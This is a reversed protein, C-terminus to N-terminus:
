VSSSSGDAIILQGLYKLVRLVEPLSNRYPSRATFVDSVGYQGGLTKVFLYSSENTVLGYLPLSRDPTAGMYALAQPLAVEVDFTTKKSEILVIWLREVLVLADIRGRLIEDEEGLAEVEVTVEARFQSPAQCFGALELLPSLVVLKITEELLLGRSVQYLYNQRVQELRVQEAESLDPLEGLWEDFFHLDKSLVLGLKQQVQALTTIDKSITLVSSM